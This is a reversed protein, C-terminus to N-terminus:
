LLIKTQTMLVNQTILHLKPQLCFHHSEATWVDYFSCVVHCMNTKIRTPINDHCCYVIRYAFYMMVKFLSAAVGSDFKNEMPIAVVFKTFYDSITLIYEMVHVHLNSFTCQM